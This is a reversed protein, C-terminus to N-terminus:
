LKRVDARLDAQKAAADASSVTAPTSTTPAARDNTSGSSCAAAVLAVALVGGAVSLRIRTPSHM